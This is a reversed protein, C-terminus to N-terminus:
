IKTSITNRRLRSLRRLFLRNFLVSFITLATIFGVWTGYAGMGLVYSCVYGVPAAIFIYISIAYYMPQKVVMMGRLGGLAVGQIGDSLQFLAGFFLFKAAMDIVEAETTFISAIQTAFFLIFIASFLMFATIIHLSARLSMAMSDYLRLGYDQSVRITTAAQLGMVVMFAMSPINIAIQHAALAKAGFTGVVIAMLSMASMEIFIQMSIPFGINLLRRVRFKCLAVNKFNVFYQRYKDKKIFIAAFMFIQTTRAICTAAGAGVAGMEPFIWWGYILAFNLAVNLLNSTIVIVMAYTTNGLGELFQRATSYLMIPLASAVMWYYYDRAVPIIDADQGMNDLFFSVIMLVVSITIGFIINLVLSNKLLSTTRNFDGRASARGVLPTLGMALGMGLLLVPWAIANAFSIAALGESSLRGVMVADVLQVTMQGLQSIIVPIALLLNQKYYPRYKQFFNM